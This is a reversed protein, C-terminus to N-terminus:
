RAGLGLFGPQAYLAGYVDMHVGVLKRVKEALHTIEPMLPELGTASAASAGPTSSFSLPPTAHSPSSTTSTASTSTSFSSASASASPPFPSSSSSSALLLGVATEEVVRRIRARMLVSLPAEARLNTEAWGTALRLLGADPLPLLEGTERTDMGRTDM